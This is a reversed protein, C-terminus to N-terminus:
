FVKKDGRVKGLIRTLDEYFTMIAMKPYMSTNEPFKSERSMIKLINKNIEM